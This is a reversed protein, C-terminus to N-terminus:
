PSILPIERYARSERRCLLYLFSLSAIAGIVTRLPDHILFYSVVNGAGDISFLLVAFWWAWRRGRLLGLAASCTGAALALLFLGSIRGISHFFLAGPRNFEWLRDLLPNPFLLSIGVLAAIATALFLFGAVITIAAPRLPV